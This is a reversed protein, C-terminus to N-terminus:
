RTHSLEGGKYLLLQSADRPEVPFKAIRADDLPYDYPEMRISRINDILAM